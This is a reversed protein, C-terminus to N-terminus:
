HLMRGRNQLLNCSEADITFRIAANHISKSAFQLTGCRKQVSDFREADISEIKNSSLLHDVAESPGLNRLGLVQAPSGGFGARNLLHQAKWYDFNRESIRKMSSTAM